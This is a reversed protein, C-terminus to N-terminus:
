CELNVCGSTLPWRMNWMHDVCVHDEMMQKLIISFYMLLLSFVAFALLGFWLWAHSIFKVADRHWRMHAEDLEEADAYETVIKKYEGFLKIVKWAIYLDKGGRICLLTTSGFNACVGLVLSSWSHCTEPILFCNANRFTVQAHFTLGQFLVGYLLVRAFTKKWTTMITQAVWRCEEVLGNRKNLAEIIGKHNDDEILQNANGILGKGM